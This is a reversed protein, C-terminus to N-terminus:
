INRLVLDYNAAVLVKGQNCYTISLKIDSKAEALIPIPFIRYDNANFIQKTIFVSGYKRIKLEIKLNLIKDKDCCSSTGVLIIHANQNKPVTYISSGCSNKGTTLKSVIKNDCIVTINGKNKNYSGATNIRVRNIRYFSNLSFVENKGDLNVTEELLEFNIDLGKIYISRAGIDDVSDSNNDSKIKLITAQEPFVYEGGNSWVDQDLNDTNVNENISSINELNTKQQNGSSIDMVYDTSNVVPIFTM